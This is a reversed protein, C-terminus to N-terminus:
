QGLTGWTGSVTYDDGRRVLVFVVVSAAVVAGVAGWFWWRTYFAGEDPKAPSSTVIPKPPLVKLGEPEESDDQAVPVALNPRRSPPAAATAPLPGARKAALLADLEAITKEVAARQSSGPDLELYRRYYDRAREPNGAQRQVHGMNLIFGPLPVAAYGAEFETMAEDYRGARLAQAGKQIHARASAEAESDAKKDGGRAGAPKACLAVGLLLAVAAARGFWRSGRM